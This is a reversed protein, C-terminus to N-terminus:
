SSIHNKRAAAMKLLRSKGNMMISTFSFESAQKHLEKFLYLFILQVNHLNHCRPKSYGQKLCCSKQKTRM